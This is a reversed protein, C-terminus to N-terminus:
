MSDPGPTPSGDLPSIQFIQFLIFSYASLIDESILLKRIRPPQDKIRSGQDKIGQGDM